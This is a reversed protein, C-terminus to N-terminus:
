PAQRGPVGGPDGIAFFGAQPKALVAEEQDPGTSRFVDLLHEFRILQDTDGLGRFGHQFQQNRGLHELRSRCFPGGPRNM